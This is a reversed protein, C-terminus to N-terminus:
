VVEYPKDWSGMSLHVYWGVDFYDTMIDSRDYNGDNIIAVMKELLESHTYSHLHYHNLQMYSPNKEPSWTAIRRAEDTLDFRVPGSVITVDVSSYNRNRVSFKFKPFAKNLRKKIERTKAASIYAM